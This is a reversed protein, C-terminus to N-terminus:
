GFREQGPFYLDESPADLGRPFFELLRDLQGDTEQDISAAVALLQETQSRVAEPAGPPMSRAVTQTKAVMRRRASVYLLPELISIGYGSGIQELGRLHLLGDAALERPTSGSLDLFGGDGLLEVQEPRLCRYHADLGAMSM